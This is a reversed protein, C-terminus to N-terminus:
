FSSNINEDISYFFLFLIIFFYLLISGFLKIRFASGLYINHKEPNNVLERILIGDLGFKAIGSIISIVAIVYSFIGFKTPGLYKTMFVGVLIGSIVRLVQELFLWFANKSYKEFIKKEVKFM